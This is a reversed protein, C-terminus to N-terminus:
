MQSSPSLYQLQSHADPDLFLAGPNAHPAARWVRWFDILNDFEAVAQMNQLYQDNSKGPPSPRVNKWNEWITWKYELQTLAKMKAEEEAQQQEM